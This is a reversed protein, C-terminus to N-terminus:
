FEHQAAIFSNARVPHIKLFVNHFSSIFSLPTKYLFIPRSKIIIFDTAILKLSSSRLRTKHCRRGRSWAVRVLNLVVQWTGWSCASINLWSTWGNVQTTITGEVWSWKDGEFSLRGSGFWVRKLRIMRGYSMLIRNALLWGLEHLYNMLMGM